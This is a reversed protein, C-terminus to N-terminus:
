QCVKAIAAGTGLGEKYAELMGGIAKQGHTKTLYEVYLKSQLYALHWNESSGPRIFGLHINDLNMLDGSAVREMLIRSWLPPMPMKEALVALGETFWHPVLFNTQELNFIHVLEHRLVRNWN